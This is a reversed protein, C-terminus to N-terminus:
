SEGFLEFPQHFFYFSQSHKRRQAYTLKWGDRPKLTGGIGRRLFSSQSTHLLRVLLRCEPVFPACFASQADQWGGLELDILVDRSKM